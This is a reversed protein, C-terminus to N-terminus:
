AKGAFAISSLQAHMAYVAAENELAFRDVFPVCVNPSSASSSTCLLLESAIRCVPSRSQMQIIRQVTDNVAGSSLGNAGESRVRLIGPLHLLWARTPGRSALLMQTEQLMNEMKNVAKNNKNNNSNSDFHVSSPPLSPGVLYDEVDGNRSKQLLWIALLAVEEDVSVDASVYEVGNAQPRLSFTFLGHHLVCLLEPYTLYLRRKTTTTTTPPPPADGELHSMPHPTFFRLFGVAERLWDLLQGVNHPTEHAACWHSLVEVMESSPMFPSTDTTLFVGNVDDPVGGAWFSAATEERGGHRRDDQSDCFMGVPSTSFLQHLRALRVVDMISEAILLRVATPLPSTLLSPRNQATRTSSPIACFRFFDLWCRATPARGVNWSKAQLQALAKQWVGGTAVAAM